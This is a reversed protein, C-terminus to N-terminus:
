PACPSATEDLLDCGVRRSNSERQLRALIAYELMPVRHTATELDAFAALLERHSCADADAALLADVSATYAAVAAVLDSRTM